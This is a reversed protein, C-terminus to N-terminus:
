GYTKQVHAEFLDAADDGTVEPPPLVKPATGVATSPKDITSFLRTTAAPTSPTKSPTSGGAVFADSQSVSAALLLVSSLSTKGLFM